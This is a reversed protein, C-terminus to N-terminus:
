AAGGMVALVGKVGSDIVETFPRPYVGALVLVAVLVAGAFLERRSIDTLQAWRPELPGFFVRAMLRLIYVATLMAAIVGCVGAVPYTKFAGVFVLVEAVFGSLGPLGLSTLGAFAFLVAVLTMRKALGQFADIDRTHARDYIMGVVAFFLATMIGHSFM